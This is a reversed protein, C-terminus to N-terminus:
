QEPICLVQKTKRGRRLAPDSAAVDTRRVPLGLRGRSMVFRWVLLMGIVLSTEGVPALRRTLEGPELGPYEVLQAADVFGADVQDRRTALATLDHSTRTLADRKSLVPTSVEAM